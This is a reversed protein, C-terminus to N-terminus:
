GVSMDVRVTRPVTPPIACRAFGANATPATTTGSAASPYASVTADSCVCVYTCTIAPTSQVPKSRNMPATSPGTTPPSSSSVLAATNWRSVGLVAKRSGASATAVMAPPIVSASRSFRNGFASGHSASNM